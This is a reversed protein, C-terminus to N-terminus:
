LCLMVLSLLYQFRQGEAVEGACVYMSSIYLLSCYLSLLHEMMQLLMFTYYVYSYILKLLLTITEECSFTIMSRLSSIGDTMGGQSYKPPRKAELMPSNMKVSDAEVNGIDAVGNSIRNSEDSANPGYDLKFRAGYQRVKTVKDGEGALIEFKPVRFEDTITGVKNVVIKIRPYNKDYIVKAIADKYPLLEETINIAHQKETVVIVLLVAFLISGGDHWGQKTGKM